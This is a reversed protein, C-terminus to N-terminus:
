NNRVYIIEIFSVEIFAGKQHHQLHTIPYRHYSPSTPSSYGSSMMDDYRTLSHTFFFLHYFILSVDMRMALSHLM